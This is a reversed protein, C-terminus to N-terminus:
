GELAAIAALVADYDPENTMESVVQRYVVRGNPALVFVARALLGMEDIYVGWRHGLSATDFDSRMVVGEIGEAACFRRQAIPTDRSVIMVVVDDGMATALENFRRTEAACVPTDVSPVTVVVRVGAGPGGVPVQGFDGRRVSAVPAVDGEALLPGVLTLPNGRVTVLDMTRPPAEDAVLPMALTMLALLSLYRM